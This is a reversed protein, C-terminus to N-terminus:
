AAESKSYGCYERAFKECDESSVFKLIVNSNKFLRLSQFKNLWSFDHECLLDTKLINGGFDFGSMLSQWSSDVEGREYLMIAKFLKSFNEHSYYSLRIYEKGRYSDEVHIYNPITLRQGKISVKTWRGITDFFNKRVEAAAKEKFSCGGLQEIIEDVLVQWTVTQDYKNKCDFSNLSVKYTSSFHHFVETIFHDKAEVLIKENESHLAKSSFFVSNVANKTLFQENKSCFDVVKTLESHLNECVEQDNTSIRSTNEIKVQEFKEFLNM